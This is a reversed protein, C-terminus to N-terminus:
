SVSREPTGFAMRTNVSIFAFPQFGFFYPMRSSEPSRAYRVLFALFISSSAPKASAEMAAEDSRSSYTIWDRFDCPAQM